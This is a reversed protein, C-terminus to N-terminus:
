DGALRDLGYDPHRAHHRVVLIQVHDSFVLYLISYPFRRMGYRRLDAKVRRYRNPARLIDAVAAEVAESFAASLTPSRRRYFQAAETLDKRAGPHYIVHM